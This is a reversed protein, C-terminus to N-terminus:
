GFNDYADHNRIFVKGGKDKASVSFAVKEDSCYDGASEWKDRNFELNMKTATSLFYYCALGVAVFTRIHCTGYYGSVTKRKKVITLFENKIESIISAATAGQRGDFGIGDSRLIKKIESFFELAADKDTEKDIHPYFENDISPYVSSYNLDMMLSEIQSVSYVFEKVVLNIKEERSLKKINIPKDIEIPTNITIPDDITAIVYPINNEQAYEIAVNGEPAYITINRCNLFTYEGEIEKLSDTFHLEKLKPCNCFTYAKIKTIKKPINIKTLSTCDSFASSGIETINEPIHITKIKECSAFAGYPLSAVKEPINISTLKSCGCFAQEGIISLNKPLTISVIKKNDFFARKGIEVIGEPVIVETSKGCYSYLVNRIIVFGNDDALGFFGGFAGSEITKVSEPIVVSKINKASMKNCGFFNSEIKEVSDPIIINESNGYCGFLVGKVVVFGDDDALSKCSGFAGTGLNIPKEPLNIHQLATCGLFAFEGIKQISEPLNVEKLTKCDFFTRYKIEKVGSPITITKLKVCGNFVSEGIINVSNPITIKRLNKCEYFASKGIANVGEPIIVSKIIENSHFAFNAIKTVGEPITVNENNGTYKKLAGNEIVFDNESM